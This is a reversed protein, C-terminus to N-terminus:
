AGPLLARIEAADAERQAVPVGIQQSAVAHACQEVVFLARERRKACRLRPLAAAYAQAARYTRAAQLRLHAASGIKWGEVRTADHPEGTWRVPYPAIQAIQAADALTPAALIADYLAKQAVYRPNYKPAFYDGHRYQLLPHM